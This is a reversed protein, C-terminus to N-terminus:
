RGVAATITLLLTMVYAVAVTATNSEDSKHFSGLKRHALCTCFQQIQGHWNRHMCRATLLALPTVFQSTCGPQVSATGTCASM